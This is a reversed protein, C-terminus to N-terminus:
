AAALEPAPEWPAATHGDDGAEHGTGAHEAPYLYGAGTVSSVWAPQGTRVGDGCVRCIM